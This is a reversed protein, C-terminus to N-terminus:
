KWSAFCHGSKLIFKCGGLMPFLLPIKKWKKSFYASKPLSGVWSLCGWVAWAAWAVQNPLRLRSMCGLCGPGLPFGIFGFSLEAWDVEVKAFQGKTSFKPKALNSFRKEKAQKEKKSDFFHLENGTNWWYGRRPYQLFVPDLLCKKFKLFRFKLLFWDCVWAFILKAAIKSCFGSFIALKYSRTPERQRSRASIAKSHALFRPLHALLRHLWMFHPRFALCKLNLTRRSCLESRLFRM